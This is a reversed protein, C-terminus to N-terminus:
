FGTMQEDINTNICINNIEGNILLIRINNQLKQRFVVFCLIPLSLM